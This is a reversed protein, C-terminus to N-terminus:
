ERPAMSPTCFRRTGHRWRALGVTRSDRASCASTVCARSRGQRRQRRLRDVRESPRSTTKLSPSRALQRERRFAEQHRERQRIEIEVGGGGVVDQAGVANREALPVEHTTKLWTAARHLRRQDIGAPDELAGHRCIGVNLYITSSIGFARYLPHIGSGSGSRLTGSSWFFVIAAAAIVKTQEPRTGARREPRPHGGPLARIAAAHRRASRGTSGSVPADEKHLTPDIAESLFRNNSITIIRVLMIQNAWFANAKLTFALDAPLIPSPQPLGALAPLHRCGGAGHDFCRQRSQDWRDETRPDSDLEKIKKLTSVFHDREPGPCTRNNPRDITSAAILQLVVFLGHLATTVYGVVLM